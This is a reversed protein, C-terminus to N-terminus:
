TKILKQYIRMYNETMTAVTFFQQYRQRANTSFNNRMKNNTAMLLMADILQKTSNNKIILGNHHDVVIEPSGGVDTVISPLGFSMAELLTMSTGESFSPLLFVQIIKLYKHPEVIYGTFIISNNVGLQRSLQELERRMQGDGIVLLIAQPIYELVKAFANIMMTQNKIPELRSITGFVFADDAINYKKILINIDNTCISDCLDDIGNYIVSMKTKPFNDVTHLATLTAKSISTINSTFLSFIPNIFKRKLKPIDPYFRGHETFILKKGTLVGALLGYFYPSYQHCHVIDIANKQIVKKLSWVLQWDFGSKRNLLVINALGHQQCITGLEGQEGDICVITSVVKQSDVCSVLQRIVQQTGGLKMDFTVHLVRIKPNKM